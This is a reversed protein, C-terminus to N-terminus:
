QEHILRDYFLNGVPQWPATEDLERQFNEFFRGVDLGDVLAHHVEVSVPMLRRGDPTPRHKGFVVRPVSNETRRAHAHAFSTFSVWPIVSYYVLDDNDSHPQLIGPGNRAEALIKEAGAAFLAFDPTYTFYAFTFTEDPRLVTSGGHIHEHVLVQDEGEDDRRLRYRFAEVGNLAGLSLWFTAIFFSPGGPRKSAQYVATVDVEATINFFPQEFRRFFDFHQRRKWTRLDLIRPM